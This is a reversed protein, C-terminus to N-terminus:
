AHLGSPPLATWPSAGDALWEAARNPSGTSIHLCHLGALQTLM